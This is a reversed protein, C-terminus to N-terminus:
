AVTMRAASTATAPGLSRWERRRARGSRGAGREQETSAEHQASKIRAGRRLRATKARGHCLLRQPDASYLAGRVGIGQHQSVNDLNQNIPSYAIVYQSRIDHAVQKALAEVEGVEGPYYVAGGSATTLADM